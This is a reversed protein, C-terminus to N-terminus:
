KRRERPEIARKQRTAGPPRINVHSNAIDAAKAKTATDIDAITEPEEIGIEQEPKNSNIKFTFNGKNGTSFYTKSASFQINSAAKSPFTANLRELTIINDTLSATTNVQVLASNNLIDAAAQNFNTNTNVYDAVKFAIAALMNYYPILKDESKGEAREDYMKQLNATLKVNSKTKMSNVTDAEKGSILGFRKALELPGNAYGNKEVIKIIEIVDSYEKMLQTNGAQELDKVSEILNRVSATAGANGKTSVKITKGKEDVLLSDFLGTNKGNDFTIRANKFGGKGFFIKEAVAADGSTIGNIIAIPQLIECFYDRFAEFSIEPYSSIDIQIPLPTANCVQATLDTLPHSAGFKATVQKLVDSITLNNFNTLIDQPMLGSTMKTAAKSNFKFGGPLDSNPWNNKTFIPSILKFFRGLLLLNNDQDKFTVVGFALQDSKRTNVFSLTKKHNKEITNIANELDKESNFSGENPFFTLGVFTIMDGKDNIFTQGAKRNALGVSEVLNDLTNLINRILQPYM